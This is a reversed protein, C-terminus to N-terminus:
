SSARKVRFYRLPLCTYKRDHPGKFLDPGNSSGLPDDRGRRGWTSYRFFAEYMGALM